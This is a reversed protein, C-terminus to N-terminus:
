GSISVNELIYGDAGGFNKVKGTVLTLTEVDGLVQLQPQIWQKRTQETM